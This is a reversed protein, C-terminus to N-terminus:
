FSFIDLFSRNKQMTKLFAARSCNNTGRGAYVSFTARTKYLHIELKRNQETEILQQRLRLRDATTLLLAIFELQRFLQAMLCAHTGFM